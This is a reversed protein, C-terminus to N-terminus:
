RKRLNNCKKQAVQKWEKGRGVVEQGRRCKFRSFLELADLFSKPAVLLRKCCSHCSRENGLATSNSARITNDTSLHLVKRILYFIKRWIEQMSIRRKSQDGIHTSSLTLLCFATPSLQPLELLNQKSCSFVKKM